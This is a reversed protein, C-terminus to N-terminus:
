EGTLTSEVGVQRMLVESDRDHSDCTRIRLRVDIISTADPFYEGGFDSGCAYWWSSFRQPRRESKTVVAVSSAEQRPRGLLRVASTHPVIFGILSWWLWPSWYRRSGSGATRFAHHDSDTGRGAASTVLEGTPHTRVRLLTVVRYYSATLERSDADSKGYTVQHARAYEAIEALVDETKRESESLYSRVQGYLHGVNAERGSAATLWVSLLM